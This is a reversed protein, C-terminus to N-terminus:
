VTELYTMWHDEPPIDALLRLEQRKTMVLNEILRPHFIQAILPDNEFLDIADNWNTVLEPHEGEYANGTIPAPPTAKREIGDIAAGLVAALHLYINTDGGAIRHEIRRGAPPGAPIRIAATRNEYGWCVSIPAHEGPVIRDYSPGHPAFVLTSARMAELCGAVAHLLTDNGEESGDDFVNNGDADVVSFHVHLGTGADGAFPKPMFTAAMNHQRAIGKVMTKFLWANDAAEMAERHNIDIEFQGTGVESIATQAPIDMMDCARYLSNFFPEFADLEALSLINAGVLPRGTRQNKVQVPTEGSDDVIYFEMEAAARVEWGKATYRELVRELARRPDGEFPTQDEKLMTAPMLYADDSLWPMPVAGRGTPQMYGDRDGTEFVLPNDDIDAGWIDVNLVSLPMRVAGNEVKRMFDAPLRKGRMRGNLDSAAIRLSSLDPLM